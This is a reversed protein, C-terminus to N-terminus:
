TKSPRTRGHGVRGVEPGRGSVFKRLGEGEGEAEVASPTGVVRILRHRPDRDLSQNLVQLPGAIDHHLLGGSPWCLAGPFWAPQISFAAFVSRPSYTPTRNQPLQWIKRPEDFILQRRNRHRRRLTFRPLRVHLPDRLAMTTREPGYQGAVRFAHMDAM